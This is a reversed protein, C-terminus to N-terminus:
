NYEKIWNFVYVSFSSITTFIVIYSLLTILFDTFIFGIFLNASNALVFIILLMQFFTNVKSIMTTRLNFEVKSLFSLLYSGSIFIDRFVVLIILYLPLLLKTGIIVYLSFIFFKDALADLYFGLKSEASFKRAIFGDLLDSLSALICLIFANLYHGSIIEWIIVPVIILRFISLLNPIKKIMM